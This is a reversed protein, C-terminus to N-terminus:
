INKRRKNERKWKLVQRTNHEMLARKKGKGSMEQDIKEWDRKMKSICIALFRAYFKIDFTLEADLRAIPSIEIIKLFKKYLQAESYRMMGTGFYDENSAMSYLLAEEWELGKIQNGASRLITNMVFCLVKKAFSGCRNGDLYRKM